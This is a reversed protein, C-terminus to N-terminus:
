MLQSKITEHFRFSVQRAEVSDSVTKAPILFSFKSGKNVESEVGITGGLLKVLQLCISLQSSLGLEPSGVITLFVTKLMRTSVGLGTGGYVRTTSGDVQSFPQFLLLQEAKSMGIGLSHLLSHLVDFKLFNNLRPFDPSIYFVCRYGHSRFSSCSRRGSRKLDGIYVRLQSIWHPHVLSLICHLIDICLFNYAVCTFGVKLANGLINM